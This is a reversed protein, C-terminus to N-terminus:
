AQNPRPRSRCTVRNFTRRFLRKFGNLNNNTTSVAFLQDELMEVVNHRDEELLLGQTSQENVVDRKIRLMMCAAMTVLGDNFGAPFRQRLSAIYLKAHALQNRFSRILKGELLVEMNRGGRALLHQHVDIYAVLLELVSQVSNHQSFNLWQWGLWSDMRRMRKEVMSHLVFWEFEFGDMAEVHDAGVSRSSDTISDGLVSAWAAISRKKLKKLAFDSAIDLANQLMLLSGGDILASQYLKNYMDSFANFIMIYLEGEREKRLVRRVGGGGQESDSSGGLDNEFNEFLRDDSEMRPVVTNSTYRKHVPRQYLNELNITADTDSRQPLPGATPFFEGSASRPQSGFPTVARPAGLCCSSQSRSEQSNGVDDTMAHELLRLYRKPDYGVGDGSSRRKLISYALFPQDEPQDDELGDYNSNHPTLPHPPSDSADPFEPDEAADPGAHAPSCDPDQCISSADGSDMSSCSYVTNCRHIHPMLSEFRPSEPRVHAEPPPPPLPQFADDIDPVDFELNGTANWKITAMRPVLRGAREIADTNQFLWHTRLWDVELNFEYDIVKMVKVLYVQRFPKMPYPHLMRYLLEFTLGQLLLILMVNGGIYFGLLDSVNSPTNQDNELRLGLVLVIAGRLGGWILLLTEKYNLGYGLYSLLPSFLMIMLARALNLLLYTSLLKAVQIFVGPNNLQSRLMGITLAGSIVFVTSNAIMSLGEVIHHHKELAGRDFAILGYAKIFVGYCVMCLPGSLNMTYEALFYFLNGVTIVAICQAIHYKRFLSIWMTVVAGVIIGMIPSLLLLKTFVLGHYWFSHSKGVLLLYFFQFLLMSSGDNILSEGAPTNSPRRPFKGNFISALKPHAKVGSLVSLVAVPDTSSLISALLFSVTINGSASIGLVYHFLAGLLLVQLVVGIVALSIGGIFFNCFAHWNIDQTAEYLLIPLVGYYLVSSDITRLGNISLSLPDSLGRGELLITFGYIVMGFIFCAISIPIRENVKSIIFQLVCASLCIFSTLTVLQAVNPSVPSPNDDQNEPSEVTEAPTGSSPLTGTVALGQQPGNTTELNSPQGSQPSPDDPSTAQTALSAAAAQSENRAPNGRIHHPLYLDPPRPEQQQTPQGHVRPATWCSAILLLLSLREM